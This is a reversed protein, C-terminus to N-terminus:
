VGENTNTPLKLTSSKHGGGMRPTDLPEGGPQQPAILAATEEFARQVVKSHRFKMEGILKGSMALYAAPNYRKLEM